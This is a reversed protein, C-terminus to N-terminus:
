SAPQPALEGPVRIDGPYPPAYSEVGTVKYAVTAPEDQYSNWILLYQIGRPRIRCEFDYQRVREIWDIAVDDGFASENFARLQEETVVAIDVEKDSAIEVFLRRFHPILRITYVALSEIKAALQIM